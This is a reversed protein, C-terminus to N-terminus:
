CQTLRNEGQKPMEGSTRQKRAMNLVRTLESLSCAKISTLDFEPYDRQISEWDGSRWFHLFEIGTEGAHELAFNIADNFATKIRDVEKPQFQKM